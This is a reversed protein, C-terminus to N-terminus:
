SREWPAQDPFSSTLFSTIFEVWAPDNEVSDHSQIYVFQPQLLALLWSSRTPGLGTVGLAFRLFFGSLVSVSRLLHPQKNILFRLYLAMPSARLARTCKVRLAHQCPEGCDALNRQMADVHVVYPVHPDTVSVKSDETLLGYPLDLWIKGLNVNVVANLMIQGDNTVLDTLSIPKNILFDDNLYLFCNSQIFGHQRLRYVLLETPVSNFTPAVDPPMFEDHFVVRV